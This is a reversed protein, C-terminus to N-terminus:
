EAGAVQHQAIKERRVVLLFQIRLVRVQPRAARHKKWILWPWMWVQEDHSALGAREIYDIAVTHSFPLGAAVAMRNLHKWNSVANIASGGVPVAVDINKRGM